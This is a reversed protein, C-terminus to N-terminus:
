HSVIVVNTLNSSYYVGPAWYNKFKFGPNGAESMKERASIVTACYSEEPILMTYRLSDGISFVIDRVNIASSKNERANKKQIYQIEARIKRELSDKGKMKYQLGVLEGGCGFALNQLIPTCIKEVSAASMILENICSVLETDEDSITMLRAKGAALVNRVKERLAILELKCSEFDAVDSADAPKSADDELLKIGVSIEKRAVSVASGM